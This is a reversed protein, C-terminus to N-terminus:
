APEAYDKSAKIENDRGITIKDEQFHVLHALKKENLSGCADRQNVCKAFEQHLPSDIKSLIAGFGFDSVGVDKRLDFAFGDSGLLRVNLRWVLAELLIM